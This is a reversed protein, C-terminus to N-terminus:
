IKVIWKADSLDEADPDILLNDVSDYFSGTLTQKSGPMQYPEVWLCGRGKILAETVAMQGHRHLGGGPQEGPSYNLYRELLQATLKNRNNHQNQRHSADVFRQEAQALQQQMQQAQWAFMPDQAAQPNQQMQQMVQQVAQEMAPDVFADRPLDLAKRTKCTRIPNSHYLIPGYLAVFEFAKAITLKFKPSLKGKLFKKQFDPEWMFGQAASYFAMCQDAVTQFPKKHEIALNIKGLWGTVLPKLFERNM